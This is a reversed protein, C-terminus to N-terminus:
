MGERKNRGLGGREVGGLPWQVWFIPENLGWKLSFPGQMRWPGSIHKSCVLMDDYLSSVSTETIMLAAKIDIIVQSTAM